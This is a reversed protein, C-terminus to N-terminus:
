VEEDEDREFKCKRDKINKYRACGIYDPSDSNHKCERCKMLPHPYGFFALIKDLAKTLEQRSIEADYINRVDDGKRWDQYRRLFLAEEQLEDIVTGRLHEATNYSVGLRRQIPGASLMEVSVIERAKELLEKENM